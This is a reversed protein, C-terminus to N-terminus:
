KDIKGIINYEDCEIYYGIKDISLQARVNLEYYYMRYIHANPKENFQKRYQHTYEDRFQYFLAQNKFYYEHYSCSDFRNEHYQTTVFLVTFCFINMLNRREVMGNGLTKVMRGIKDFYTDHLIQKIEYFNIFKDIMYDFIEKPLLSFYLTKDKHLDRYRGFCLISFSQFESSEDYYQEILKNFENDNM